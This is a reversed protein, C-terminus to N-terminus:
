KGIRAAALRTEAERDGLGVGAAVRDAGGRHRCLAAVAERQVSLLREDGVGVAGIVGQDHSAGRGVGVDRFLGIAEGQEDHVQFRLSQLLLVDRDANGRGFRL